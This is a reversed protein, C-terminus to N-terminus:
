WKVVQNNPLGHAYHSPVVQFPDHIIPFTTQKFSAVLNAKMTDVISWRYERDINIVVEGMSLGRTPLIYLSELNSITSRRAGVGKSQGNIYPLRRQSLFFLLSFSALPMKGVVRVYTVM